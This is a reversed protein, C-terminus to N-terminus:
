HIETYALSDAMRDIEAETLPADTMSSMSM